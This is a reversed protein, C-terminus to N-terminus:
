DLISFIKNDVVVAYAWIRPTPMPARESWTRTRPDYAEVLDLAESYPSGGFIYIIGNVQAATALRRNVSLSEGSNWSGPQTPIATASVTAAVLAVVVVASCCLRRDIVIGELHRTKSM